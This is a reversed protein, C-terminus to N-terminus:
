EIKRYIKVISGNRPFYLETHTFYYGCVHLGSLPVIVRHWHSFTDAFFMTPRLDVDTCSRLSPDVTSCGSVLASWSSSHDVSYELHVAGDTLASSCGVNIQTCFGSLIDFIDDDDDDDDDDGIGGNIVGTSCSSCM